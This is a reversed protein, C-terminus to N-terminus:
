PRARRGDDRVIRVGQESRRDGLRLEAAGTPGNLATKPIRNDLANVVGGVASGGYLLAAPGRLVEVREVVLPDIPVAHDASLASADLSAGSNSLVRIRDGDQGRIMPRNANPGFYSSSVGPLRDLTEGLTTGRRLVLQLEFPPKAGLQEIAVAVAHFYRRGGAAHQDLGFRHHRVGRRDLPVKGAEVPFHGADDTDRCGLTNRGMPQHWAEAQETAGMRVDDDLDDRAILHEVEGGALVAQLNAKIGGLEIQDAYHFRLTKPDIGVLRAIEDQPIGFGSLSEVLNRTEDTPAHSPRGARPRTVPLDKTQHVDRDHHAAVRGRIAAAQDGGGVGLQPLAGGVHGEEEAELLLVRQVGLRQHM